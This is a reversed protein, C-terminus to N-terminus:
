ISNVLIKSLHLFEINAMHESKKQPEQLITELKTAHPSYVAKRFYVPRYYKAM